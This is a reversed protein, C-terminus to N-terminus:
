GPVSGTAYGMRFLFAATRKKEEATPLKFDFSDALRNLVNFLFCVYLAEEIAIDSLGISRLPIIDEPGVESPTRTVKELFALITQLKPDLEVTRWDATSMIAAVVDNDFEHAAVAAHHEM